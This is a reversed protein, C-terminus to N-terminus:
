RKMAEAVGPPLDEALDYVRKWLVYDFNRPCAPGILRYHSLVQNSPTSMSADLRVKLKAAAENAKAPLM